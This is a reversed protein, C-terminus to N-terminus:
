QVRACIAWVKIQRTDPSTNKVTMTWADGTAFPASYNISIDDAQITFDSYGGGGSMVKKGAPCNCQGRFVTNGEVSFDVFHYSVDLMFKGSAAINGRVDLAETPNTTGIGMAGAQKITVVAANANNYFALNGAGGVNAPGTAIMKFGTPSASTNTLYLWTGGISNNVVNLDGTIKANGGVDLRATPSATGIGVNGNAKIRMTELSNGANISSYFAHDTVSQYRLIGPNIGFGYFQHDGNNDDYLVLKKNTVTNAFQLPANPFVVGIGLSDKVAVSGAVDLKQQPNSTGIGVNQSYCVLLFLFHIVFLSALKKM